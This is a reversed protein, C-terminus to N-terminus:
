EHMSHLVLSTLLKIHKRKAYRREICAGKSHQWESLMYIADCGRLLALDYQMYDAWTWDPRQAVTAPNVVIYGMSELMTACTAFVAMYDAHGTIPGSIYVRM